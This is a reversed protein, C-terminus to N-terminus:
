YLCFTITSVKPAMRWVKFPAIERQLVQCQNFRITQCRLDQSTRKTQSDISGRLSMKSPTDDHLKNNLLWNDWLGRSAFPLSVRSASDIIQLVFRTLWAQVTLFISWSHIIGFFPTSQKHKKWKEKMELVFLQWQFEDAYLYWGWGPRAPGPRTPDPRTPPFVAYMMARKACCLIALTQYVNWLQILSDILTM